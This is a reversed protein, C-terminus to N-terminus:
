SNTCRTSWHPIQPPVNKGVPKNRASMEDSIECWEKVFLAKTEDDMGESLTYMLKKRERMAKAFKLATAEVTGSTEPEINKVLLNLYKTAIKDSWSILSRSTNNPPPDKKIEILLLKEYNYVKQFVQVIKSRDESAIVKKMVKSESVNTKKM